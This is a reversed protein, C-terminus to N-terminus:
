TRRRVGVVALGAGVVLALGAMWPRVPHQRQTSLQVGGVDFVERSGTILGGTLLAYAGGIVLLVGVVTLGRM